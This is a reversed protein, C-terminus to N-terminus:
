EEEAEAADESEGAEAAEEEEEADEEDDEKVEKLTEEEPEEKKPKLEEKGYNKYNELIHSNGAEVIALASISFPKGCIAGLEVSDGEFVVVDTKTVNSLHLIDYGSSKEGRKAMVILKAKNSHISSMVSNMGMAVKGSDVAIRIDSALDAM